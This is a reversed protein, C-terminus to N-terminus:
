VVELHHSVLREVHSGSVEGDKMIVDNRHPSHTTHHQPPPLTPSLPPIDRDGGGSRGEEGDEGGEGRGGEEEGGEEQERM